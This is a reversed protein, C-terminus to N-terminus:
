LVEVDYTAVLVDKLRKQRWKKSVDTLKLTFTREHEVDGSMVCVKVPEFVSVPIAEYGDMELEISGPLSPVGEEWEIHRLLQNQVDELFEDQTCCYLGDTKAASSIARRLVTIADAEIPKHPVRSDIIHLAEGPSMSPNVLAAAFTPNLNQKRLLDTINERSSM